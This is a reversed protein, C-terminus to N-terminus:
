PASREESRTGTRPQASGFRRNGGQKGPSDKGTLVAAASSSGAYRYRVRVAVRSPRTGEPVAVGKGGSYVPVDRVTRVEDRRSNM